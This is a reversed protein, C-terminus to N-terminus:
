SGVSWHHAHTPHLTVLLRLLLLGVEAKALCIRDIVACDSRARLGLHGEIRVIALALLLLLLLVVGLSM